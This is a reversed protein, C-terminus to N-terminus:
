DAEAATNGGKGIKEMRERKEWREKKQKNEM